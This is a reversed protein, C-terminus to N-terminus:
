DAGDAFISRELCICPYGVRGPLFPAEAESGTM